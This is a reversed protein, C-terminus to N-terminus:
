IEFSDGCLQYSVTWNETRVEPAVSNETEEYGLSVGPVTGASLDKGTQEYQVSLAEIEAQLLMEEHSLILGTSIGPFTGTAKIQGTLPYTNRYVGPTAKLEIDSM